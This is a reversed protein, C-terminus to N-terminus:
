SSRRLDRHYFSKRETDPTEHWSRSRASAYRERLVRTRTVQAPRQWRTTKETSCREENGWDFRVAFPSRPAAGYPRVSLRCRQAQGM